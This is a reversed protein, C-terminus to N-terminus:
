SSRRVAIWRRAVRGIRSSTDAPDSILKLGSNVYRNDAGISKSRGSRSRWVLDRYRSTVVEDRYFYMDFCVRVKAAATAATLM